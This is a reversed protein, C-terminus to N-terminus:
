VVIVIMALNIHFPIYLQKNLNFLSYPALIGITKLNLYLYKFEKNLQYLFLVFNTDVFILKM